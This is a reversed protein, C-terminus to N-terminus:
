AVTDLMLHKCTELLLHTESYTPSPVTNTQHTMFYWRCYLTISKNQKSFRALGLLTDHITIVPWCQVGALILSLRCRYDVVCHFINSHILQSLSFPWPPVDKECVTTVLLKIMSLLARTSQTVSRMEYYPMPRFRISYTTIIRSM